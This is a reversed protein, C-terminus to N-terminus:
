RLLDSDYISFFCVISSFCNHCECHQHRQRQKGSSEIEVFRCYLFLYCWGYYCCRFVYFMVVFVVREVGYTSKLRNSLAVSLVQSADVVLVVFSSLICVSPSVVKFILSIFYACNHRFYVNCFFINCAYYAFSFVLIVFQSLFLM